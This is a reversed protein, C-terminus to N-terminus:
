AGRTMAKVGIGELCMVANLCAQQQIGLYVGLTWRLGKVM